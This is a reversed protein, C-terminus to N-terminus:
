VYIQSVKENDTVNFFLMKFNCFDRFLYNIFFVQVFSKKKNKSKRKNKAPLFTKSTGKKDSPTTFYFHIILQIKYKLITGNKQNNIIVFLTMVKQGNQLLTYLVRIGKTVYPKGLLINVFHTKVLTINSSSKQVYHKDHSVCIAVNWDCIYIIASAYLTCNNSNTFLSFAFLEEKKRQKVM